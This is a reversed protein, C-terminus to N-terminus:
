KQKRSIKINRAKERQKLWCLMERKRVEDKKSLGEIYKGNQKKKDTKKWKKNIDVSM